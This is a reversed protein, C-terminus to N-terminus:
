LNGMVYLAALSCPPFLFIRLMYQLIKVAIAKMTNQMRKYRRLYLGDYM